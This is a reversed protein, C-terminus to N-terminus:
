LTGCFHKQFDEKGESYLSNFEQHTQRLWLEQNLNEIQEFSNKIDFTRCSGRYDLWVPLKTWTMPLIELKLATRL